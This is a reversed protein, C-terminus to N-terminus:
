RFAQQNPHAPLNFLKEILRPDDYYYPQGGITVVLHGWQRPVRDSGCAATPRYGRLVGDPGFLSRSGGDGDPLAFLDEYRRLRYERPAYKHTQEQDLAVLRSLRHQTREIRLAFSTAPVHQVAREIASGNLLAPRVTLAQGTFWQPEGGNAQVSDYLLPTGREDLTVRWILSHPAGGSSAAFWLFYELQILTRQGLRTYDIRYYVAPTHADVEVQQGRLVPTGPVDNAGSTEVLLQPAHAAALEAWQDMPLGIRGLEDRSAASLDAPQQVDMSNHWLQWRSAGTGQRTPVSHLPTGDPAQAVCQPPHESLTAAQFLRERGAEDATEAYSLWVACVRLDELLGAREVQPMGLNILEDERALSDYERLQLMWTGFKDLEDLEGRYSSMLRDTRLYPYGPLRFYSADGVGARDIRQDIEAYQQRCHDLFAQLKESSASAALAANEDALVAPISMLLMIGWAMNWRVNM